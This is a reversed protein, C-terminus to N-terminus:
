PASENIHDKLMKELKSQRKEIRRLTRTIPALNGNVQQHVQEIKESQGSREYKSKQYSIIIAVIVSFAGAIVTSLLSLFM